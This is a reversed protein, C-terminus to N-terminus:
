SNSGSTILNNARTVFMSWEESRTVLYSHGSKTATFLKRGPGGDGEIWASRLLDNNELRNLIPYLTGGKVTGLGRSQLQRAIAYGHTGKDGADAIVALVCLSLVGRLWESPWIRDDM